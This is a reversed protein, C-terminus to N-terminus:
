FNYGSAATSATTAASTKGRSNQYDESRKRLAALALERNAIAESMEAATISEEDDWAYPVKATGTIVFDKNSSPVSKVYTDGFASEETVERYVTQSVQRGWVKTFIPSKPAVDLKSFYKMGNPNLVSFEVPLLSKRFDFIYGGVIVKAPLNRDIDAEVDRINTIIMDAEFHSRAAEDEDLADTIIHCFGGENRKVTIPQEDKLNQFWENLGIASDVRVKTANELGDQAVTPVGNIIRELATYTANTKGSSTLATVYTYHVPIVNLGANDTAINLTGSIFETGPHKSTEGSIKKELKHDYILGEIHTSNIMTKKM